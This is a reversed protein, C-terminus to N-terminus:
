IRMMPRRVAAAPSCGPRYARCGLTHPKGRRWLRSLDGLGCGYSPFTLGSHIGWRRLLDLTVVRFAQETAAPVAVQRSCLRPLEVQV